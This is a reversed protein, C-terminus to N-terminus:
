GAASTEVSTASDSAEITADLCFSAIPSGPLRGKRRAAAQTGKKVRLKVTVRLSLHWM